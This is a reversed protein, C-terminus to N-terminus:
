KPAPTVQPANMIGTTSQLSGPMPGLPQAGQVNEQTPNFGGQQPMNFGGQGQPPTYGGSSTGQPTTFGGSSPIFGGSPQGQTDFGGSQGQSPYSQQTSPYYPQQTQQGFPQQTGTQGGWPSTGSTTCAVDPPTYIVLTVTTGYMATGGTGPTQKVVKCEMGEYKKETTKVSVNLGAQQLTSMATAKEMGVVGPVRIMSQTVPNTRPQSGARDLPGGYLPGVCLFIIMGSLPLIGISKKM